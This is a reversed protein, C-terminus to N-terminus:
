AIGDGEGQGARRNDSDGQRREASIQEGVIGVSIEQM